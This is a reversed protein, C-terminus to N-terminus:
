WYFCSLAVLTWIAMLLWYAVPESARRYERHLWVSGALLDWAVWAVWALLAIGLWTTWNM